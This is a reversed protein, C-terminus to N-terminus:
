HGHPPQYSLDYESLEVAWRVMRGSADPKSLIQKLPQDTMVVVPHTQLYSRLKRTAHVLALIYREISTYRQEAGQLARSVYYIPKQIKGEERVLVASIAEEGVALYIFLVEGQAPSTLAPLRAIHAKLEDFALQCEPTWEFQPGRRLARFFPSGRVASKSLFRNLAAMRGALRQVEKINRPPAMDMIAKVKDPNARVGDKSIMYGLFKGSRVGFPCKKPNLRMRSSRLVDFIERLDNIFQEQTRSKVLMDLDSSCVDSSTM